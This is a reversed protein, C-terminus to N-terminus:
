VNLLLYFLILLSITAALDETSNWSQGVVARWLKDLVILGFAVNLAAPLGRFRIASQRRVLKWGAALIVAFILLHAFLQHRWSLAGAFTGGFALWLFVSASSLVAKKRALDNTVSITYLGAKSASPVLGLPQHLL